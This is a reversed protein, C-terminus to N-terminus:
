FWFNYTFSPVPVGIISFKYLAYVRYDNQRTPTQKDYFVSFANNRGYVNYVSFTWSSHWKRVRKLSGEYTLAMDLRHYDPMRYKNRESFTVIEYSGMSYKQEPYTAPRGTSYTFNSAFTFRRSIKYNMVLTFDHPKDYNSRYWKGKNIKEEAFEGDMKKFSRSYTYALWGTLNGNNKKILLEAGYARGVGHVLVQELDNNLILRAGNKYDVENQINKYYVELSTEYNNNSFNKFFGAAYQDSILPSIFKDSAKWYDAPTISASNAIQRINQTTRNYGMKLSGSKDFEWRFAIRPEFSHNINAIDSSSYTTSGLETEENLPSNDAYTKESFPGFLLFNSYRLGAILSLEPTLDYEDELYASAETAQENDINVVPAISFDSYPTSYGPEINYRILSVGSNLKHRAIVGSSFHYSVQEQEISTNLNYEVNKTSFDVLDSNYKSFNVSLNGSNNNNYISRWKLAGIVNGYGYEASEFYNFYDNSCYGFLSIRNKKDPTYDLKLNLDNFRVSSNQLEYNKLLKLMWDSYTSRVGANFTLKDKIIPGEASIHSNVIGIGGNIKIKQADSKRLEINMVSSVRGGYRAPIGSKYLTVDSIVNPDLMSFLGFLHSTNYVPADHVLILNQDINGGRVNFGSANEGTSQVGPLLTMSKIVDPEGMLISLKKITKMNMKVMGMSTSRFNDDPREATINIQDLSITKEYLEVEMSGNGHLIVERVEDTLGMFSFKLMNKGTPLELSFIGDFNTKTVKSLAECQVQAGPIPTKTKGDLVKGTLTAKKYKGQDLPNGIVVVNSSIGKNESIILKGPMVILNGQYEIFHLDNPSLVEFLVETFSKQGSIAPLKIKEVWADKFYFKIHHDSEIKKSFDPFSLNSYEKGLQIDPLTQGILLTNVFLLVTLIFLKQM